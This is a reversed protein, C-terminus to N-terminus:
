FGWKTNRQHSRRQLLLAVKRKQKKHKPSRTRDEEEDDCSGNHPSPPQPITVEGEESLDDYSDDVQGEENGSGLSANAASNNEVAVNQKHNHIKSPCYKYWLGGM